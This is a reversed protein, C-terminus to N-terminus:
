EHCSEFKHYVPVKDLSVREHQTKIFQYYKEASEKNNFATVTPEDDGDLYTAIWLDGELYELNREIEGCLAFYMNEALNGQFFNDCTAKVAKRIEVTTYIM